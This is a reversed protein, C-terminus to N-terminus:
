LYIAGDEAFRQEDIRKEVLEEIDFRMSEFARLADEQGALPLGTLAELQHLSMYCTILAGMQQAPFCVRQQDAQWEVLDPFHIGQNM